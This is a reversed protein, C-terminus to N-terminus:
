FTAGGRSLIYQKSQANLTYALIIAPLVFSLVSFGSGGSMALSILNLIIALAAAVVLPRGDRGTLASVGGWIYLAAIVLVAVAVVRLSGLDVDAAVDTADLAFLLLAGIISFGASVFALVSAATLKGPRKTGFPAPGGGYGPTGYVHYNGADPPQNM